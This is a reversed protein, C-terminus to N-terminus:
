WEGRRGGCYANHASAIGSVTLLSVQRVRIDTSAIKNPTRWGTYENAM